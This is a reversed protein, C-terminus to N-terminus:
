LQGDGCKRYSSKNRRVDTPNRCILYVSEKEWSVAM